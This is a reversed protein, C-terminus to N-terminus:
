DFRGAVPYSRTSLPLRGDTALDDVTGRLETCTAIGTTSRRLETEARIRPCSERATTLWQISTHVTSYKEAFVQTGCSRCTVPQM